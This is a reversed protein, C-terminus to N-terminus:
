RLLAGLIYRKAPSTKIIKLEHEEFDYFPKTTELTTLSYMPKSTNSVHSAHLSEIFSAFQDKLRDVLNQVLEHNSADEVMDVMCYVHTSNHARMYHAVREESAKFAYALLKTFIGRNRLDPETYWTGSFLFTDNRNYAKQWDKIATTNMREAIDEPNLVFFTLISVSQNDPDVAIFLAQKNITEHWMRERMTYPYVILYNNARSRGMAETVELLFLVDGCNARRYVYEQHPYTYTCAGLQFISQIVLSFLIIGIKKM